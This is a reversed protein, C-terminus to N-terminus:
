DLGGSFHQIAFLGAESGTFSFCLCYRTGGITGYATYNGTSGSANSPVLTPGSGDFVGGAAHTASVANFVNGRAATSGTIFVEAYSNGGITITSDALAVAASSVLGLAALATTIKNLKM